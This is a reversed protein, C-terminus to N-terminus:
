MRLHALKNLTSVINKFLFKNYNITIDNYYLKIIKKKTKEELYIYNKLFYFTFYLYM